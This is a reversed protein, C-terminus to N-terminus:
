SIRAWKRWMQRYAREMNRTFRPANMLASQEMRQRLTSRLEILRPLDSALGVAIRVYQEPTRGV